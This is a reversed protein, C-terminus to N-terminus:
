PLRASSTQSSKCSFSSAYVSHTTGYIYVTPINAIYTVVRKLQIPTPGKEQGCGNEMRWCHLVGCDHLDGGLQPQVCRERGEQDESPGSHTRKGRNSELDCHGIWVVVLGEEERHVEM